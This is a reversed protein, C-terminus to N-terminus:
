PPPFPPTMVAEGRVAESIELLDYRDFFAKLNGSGCNVADAVWMARDESATLRKCHSVFVDYRYVPM